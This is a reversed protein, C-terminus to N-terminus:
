IGMVSSIKLHCLMARDTCVVVTSSAWSLLSVIAIQKTTGPKEPEWLWQLLVLYLAVM